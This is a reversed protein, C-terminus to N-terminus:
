GVALRSQDRRGLWRRDGFGEVADEGVPGQNGPHSGLPVRPEPGGDRRPGLDHGAQQVSMAPTLSIIARLRHPSRSRSRTAQSDGIGGAGVPMAVYEFATRSPSSRVPNRSRWRISAMQGAERLNSPASGQYANHTYWRPLLTSNWRSM